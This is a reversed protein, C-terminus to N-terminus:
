GGIGRVAGFVGLVELALPVTAIMAALEALDAM